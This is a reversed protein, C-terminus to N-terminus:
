RALRLAHSSPTQEDGTPGVKEPGTSAAARVSTGRVGARPTKKEIRAKLVVVGARFGAGRGDFGFLEIHLPRGILTGPASREAADVDLRFMGAGVEDCAPSMRLGNITVFLCPSATGGPAAEAVTAEVVLVTSRLGRGLKATLLRTGPLAPVFTGAASVGTAISAVVQRPSEVQRGTTPKSNMVRQPAIAM